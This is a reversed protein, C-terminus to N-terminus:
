CFDRLGGGRAMFWGEAEEIGLLASIWMRGFRDVDAAKAEALVQGFQADTVVFHNKDKWATAFQVPTDAMWLHASMSWSHCLGLKGDCQLGQHGALLRYTQLFFFAFLTTRRASEQLIWDSWFAKTPALPYLPLEITPNGDADIPSDIDFRTYALLNM